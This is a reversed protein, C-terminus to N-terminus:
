DDTPRVVAEVDEVHDHVSLSGRRLDRLAAAWEAPLNADFSRSLLGHFLDPSCHVHLRDPEDTVLLVIPRLTLPRLAATLAAITLSPTATDAIVVDHQAAAIAAIGDAANAYHDVVLNESRLRDALGARDQIPEIILVTSM